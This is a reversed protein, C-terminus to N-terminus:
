LGAKKLYMIAATRNSVGIKEYINTLYNKVTGLSIFLKDAIEKNSCGNILEKCIENERDTLNLEELIKVEKEESEKKRYLSEVIKAAINAPLIMNGNYADRITQILKDGEIDKLLYGSAGNLLSDVIYNDEDFTTLIIVTTKPLESKILKTCEVGNMEPMRVDMLVIDPKFKKAVEFGEIGNSATAVVEIDDELDLIIKLSNRLLTQDDIIIVRIKEM